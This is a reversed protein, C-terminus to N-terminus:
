RAVYTYVTKADATNLEKRKTACRMDAVTAPFWRSGARTELALAEHTREWGRAGARILTAADRLKAAEGLVELAGTSSNIATLRFRDQTPNNM